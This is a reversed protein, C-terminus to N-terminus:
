SRGDPEGEDKSVASAEVMADELPKTCDPQRAPVAAIQLRLRVRAMPWWPRFNEPPPDSM